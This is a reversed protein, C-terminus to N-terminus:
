PQKRRILRWIAVLRRRAREWPLLTQVQKTEPEPWPDLDFMKRGVYRGILVTSALVPAALVLGVLGILNTAIIAAILVGAPHVGLTQGMIRPVVLNDFVQDLLFCLSVVLVAYWIPELGYYNTPQLFAVIATVTWTVLPGIYPIFRAAGAMLAIVLTLRTGLITLLIYYSVVVLFSILLQGRLFADWTFALKQILREVDANYGPIEFHLLNARLQGTESLLFYSVLLIFLLWALTSAASAALKSVLTGAQGLFPQIANLLDQVVTQLDLQSFDLHFPGIQYTQTPLNEVMAPLETVFKSVFSVLSQAQQVIAFGTLTIFVILIVLLLLYILNVAARWSLHLKKSSWAALPHFLFALIFALLVPGIIGRFYIVLGAILSVITLGVILKTTSGWNPSGPRETPEEM